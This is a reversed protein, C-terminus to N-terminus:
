SRLISSSSTSGVLAGGVNYTNGNLDITINKANAAAIMVGNGGLREGLERVDGKPLEREGGVGDELKPIAGLEDHLEEVAFVTWLVEFEVLHDGIVLREAVGDDRDLGIADDLHMDVGLRRAEDDFIGLTEAFENGKLHLVHGDLM